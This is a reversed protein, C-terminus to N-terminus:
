RLKTRYHWLGINQDKYKNQLEHNVMPNKELKSFSQAVLAKIKTEKPCWM